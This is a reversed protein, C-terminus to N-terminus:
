NQVDDHQEKNASLAKNIARQIVKGITQTQIRGIAACIELEVAAEMALRSPYQDNHIDDTVFEPTTIEGTVCSWHAEIAVANHPRGNRAAEMSDPDDGPGIVIVTTYDGVAFPKNCAPCKIRDAISPHDASKPGFRRELPLMM